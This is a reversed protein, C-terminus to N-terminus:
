KLMYRSDDRLAPALAPAPYLPAKAATVANKIATHLIHPKRMYSLPYRSGGVTTFMVTGYGLLRGLLPEIIVMGEVNELPCEGSVRFLLGTRYMIRKNTLIVESQFYAFLTVTLVLLILALSPSVVIFTLLPSTGPSTGPVLGSLSSSVASVMIFFSIDVLLLLLTLIAPAAFIGLHLKERRLLHEGPEIQM